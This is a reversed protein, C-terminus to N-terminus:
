AVNEYEKKIKVLIKKENRSVKVQNVGLIDAVESQTKDEYYRLYILKKEEESLKNLEEQLLLYDINYYDKNDKVTDFLTIDKGNNYITSELSVTPVMSAYVTTIINPDIELFASLEKISPEKM